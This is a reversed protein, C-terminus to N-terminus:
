ATLGSIGDGLLKAAIILCLVAIIVANNQAMWQKLNGLTRDSRKGLTFFLVIPVAVGITGILVFVVLAMAQDGAEMGTQAIAAAAAITLVLNKPNLAALAAGMTLSRTATFKDVSKLWGPMEGHEDAKPRAHWNKFAMRLLVLALLIKLISVWTAPAGTDGTADAGSSVLLVVAGVVALGIMWGGLFALANAKARPTALVLVIGIIPIPSLATAVALPLIQGIAHGLM